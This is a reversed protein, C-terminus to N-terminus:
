FGPAAPTPPGAAPSGTAPANTGGRMGTLQMIFQQLQQIDQTNGAVAQGLRKILNVVQEDDEILLTDDDGPQVSMNLDVSTQSLRFIENFVEYLKSKGFGQLIARQVEPAMTGIRGLLEVLVTAAQTNSVRDGGDRATFIYDHILGWKSGKVSLINVGEVVAADFGAQEIIAAPFRTLVPLVFQEDGKAIWSEYCIKKMAARGRDISKSIFGYVTETTDGMQKSETASIEHQAPQGMENPSLATLREATSILRTIAQFIDTLATNPASRVVKFINDATVNIGLQQLKQFSAELVQTSAFFNVGKMVARFEELVKKGDETDPFIDTNLVAISFLDAKITELMQSYLNTLQDQFQMLEHALSLNNFRSDNENYSWVSACTSPMIEAGVVTADGAVVLHVWIPYPYSGWGWKKPVEKVYLHTFFTAMHEMEATYIGVQNKRDNTAAANEGPIIPPVLRDYYQNFYASYNNFMAATDSSFAVSDRNFYAPDDAIEGWRMVDWFGVFRAGIDPNLSTLPHSNDWILRSPHPRVFCVGERTTVARKPIKGDKTEFEKSRRDRHWQVEREWAARPFGVNHGYLFMDRTMQEEFTGYDFQDAMIDMRQATLEEQVKGVSGSVRSEYKFHPFLNGYKNVQAAVRRTVISRILNINMETFKPMDIGTIAGDKNKRIYQMGNPVDELAKVCDDIKVRGQAYLLLPFIQKNIPVSDWALDVAGYFQYNSLAFVVNEQLWSGLQCEYDEKKEVDKEIQKRKAADLKALAKPTKPLKATFFERLRENTTGCEALIEYDVM